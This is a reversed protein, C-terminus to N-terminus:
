KLGLRKRMLEGSKSIPTYYSYILYKIFSNMEKKYFAVTHKIEDTMFLNLVRNQVEGNAAAENIIFMELRSRDANNIASKLEDFSSNQKKSGKFNTGKEMAFYLAAIIHKCVKVKGYNCSCSYSMDSLDIKIDFNLIDKISASIKNSNIQFNTVNEKHDAYFKKGRTLVVKNCISKISKSIIKNNM